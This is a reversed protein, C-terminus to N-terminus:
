VAGNGAGFGLDGSKMVLYGVAILLPIGFPVSIGAPGNFFVGYQFLVSALYAVGAVIFLMGSLLDYRRVGSGNILWLITSVMICLSGAAWLLVSAMTRGSYTGQLTYSLDVTVPLLYSGYGSEKYQYFVGQFGFGTGDGIIFFHLPLIFCIIVLLIGILNRM